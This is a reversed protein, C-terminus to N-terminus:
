VLIINWVFTFKNTCQDYKKEQYLWVDSLNHEHCKVACLNIIFKSQFLVSFTNAILTVVKLYMSM